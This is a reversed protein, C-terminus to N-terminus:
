QTNGSEPPPHGAANGNGKHVRFMGAPVTIEFRAGTGPKGTEKITMGTLSLIERSFFLGFGSRKGSGRRFIKEKEEARIGIGNDEYIITLADPGQECTLRISSVKEGYRLSNELLNSFVRDLLPDGFVELGEVHVSYAIYDHGLDEQHKSFISGVDLWQPLNEGLREYDKTFAIQRSITSAAKEQEQLSKVLSPDSVAERLLENHMVIITIQNLIDHRTIGTLLNIKKRAMALSQGTLHQDTIDALLIVYGRHGGTAPVLPICHLDIFHITDEWERRLTKQWEGASGKAPLPPLEHPPLIDGIASGVMERDTTALLQRAGPNIEVIRGQADLLVIGSPIQRLAAGCEVPVLDFLKFQDIGASLAVVSITFTIPTLNLIDLPYIQFLYAVYTFLPPFAAILLCALQGRFVGSASQYHQLILALGALILLSWSAFFIWFVPISASGYPLSLAFPTPLGPIIAPVAVAAILLVAMVSPIIFLFFRSITRGGPERGTFQLSFQVFAVPIIAIAANEGIDAVMAPLAGGSLHMGATSWSWLAAAALLIVLPVAGTTTARERWFFLAFLSTMSGSLVLLLLVPVTEWVM